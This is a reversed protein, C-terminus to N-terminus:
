LSSTRLDDRHAPAPTGNATAPAAIRDADDDVGSGARREEEVVLNRDYVTGGDM